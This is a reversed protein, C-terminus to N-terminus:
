DIRLSWIGKPNAEWSKCQRLEYYGKPVHRNMHESHILETDQEIVFYGLINQRDKKTYEVYKVPRAFKHNDYANVETFIGKYDFEDIEVFALDGQQVKIKDFNVNGIM